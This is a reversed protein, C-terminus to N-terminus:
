KDNRKRFVRAIAVAQEVTGELEVLGVDGGEDANEVTFRGCCDKGLFAAAGRANSVRGHVAEAIKETATRRRAEAAKSRPTM